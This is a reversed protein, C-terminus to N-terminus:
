ETNAEQSAKMQALAQRAAEGAAFIERVFENVTHAFKVPVFFTWTPKARADVKPSVAFPIQKEVLMCSLEGAQVDTYMDFEEMKTM